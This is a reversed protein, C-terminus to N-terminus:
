DDNNTVLAVFSRARMVLNEVGPTGTNCMTDIVLIAQAEWGRSCWQDTLLDREDEGKEHAALWNYVEDEGAQAKNQCDLYSYMIVRETKDMTGGKITARLLGEKVQPLIGTTTCLVPVGRAGIRLTMKERASRVAEVVQNKDNIDKVKVTIGPLGPILLPPITYSSVNSNFIGAPHLSDDLPGDDIGAMKLVEKTSRLPISIVPLHFMSFTSEITSTASIIDDSDSGAVSIWLMGGGNTLTTVVQSLDKSLSSLMFVKKNSPLVAEDIFIAAGPNSQALSLISPGLTTTKSQNISIMQINKVNSFQHELKMELLPKKKNMFRCVIFFIKQDPNDKAFSKAKETMCLTKGTSWNSKFMVFRYDVLMLNSQEHTWFIYSKYDGQGAKGGQCNKGVKGVVKHDVMNIITCPTGIDQSLLTFAIRKVVKRYEDHDPVAKNNKYLETLKTSLDEPTFIINKKCDACIHLVSNNVQFHMWAVYSWNVMPGFYEEVLKKMGFLQKLGGQISKGYLSRKSEICIICKLLKSVIIFDHEQNGNTGPPRFVAGQFIAVQKDPFFSYFDKLADCLNKEALDGSLNQCSEAEVGLFKRSIEDLSNLKIKYQESDVAKPVKPLFSEPLFIPSVQCGSALLPFNRTLLAEEADQYNDFYQNAGMNFIYSHNKKMNDQVEHDTAPGKSNSGLLELVTKQLGSVVIKSIGLPSNKNNKDHNNFCCFKSNGKEEGMIVIDWGQVESTVTRGLCQTLLM